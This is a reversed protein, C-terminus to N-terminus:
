RRFEDKKAKIGAEIMGNVKDNGNEYLIIKTGRERAFPTTMSDVISVKEFQQFVADDKKPMPGVFLLHKINYKDPM